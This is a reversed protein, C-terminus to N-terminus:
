RGHARREGGRPPRCQAFQEVGQGDTFRIFADLLVGKYNQGRGPRRPVGERVRDRLGISIPPKTSGGGLEHGM